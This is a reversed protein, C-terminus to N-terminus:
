KGFMNKILAILKNFLEAIKKFFKILGSSALGDSDIIDKTLSDMIKKAADGFDRIFAVDSKDLLEFFFQWNENFQKHWDNGSHAGVHLGYFLYYVTYLAKDTGDPTSVMQAFNDLFSCIFTYAKEDMSTEAKILEELKKVNDGTGLFRLLLRLVITVMDARSSMGAYEMRYATRGNLSEYSVLKGTTLEAVADITLEAFDFGTSDELKEFALAMLSEFTMEDLRVGLLEYLDVHVLPELADLVTYVSNLTNKWVSDLGNSNIFYAVNPLLEFIETSPNALIADLKDLIPDLIDTLMADENAAIDAVYEGYTKIGNCNLAELVPILGDNYGDSGPLVVQDNGDADLFFAIDEETLLWKLVPYLPRLMDCLASTFAARDGDEIEPVTYTGYFFLDVGLASKVASKILEAEDLEDIKEVLEALKSYIKDLNSKTYINGGVLDNILDELSKLQKGDVEIGLFEIIDDAFCGIYKAIYEAMEPKWFEGYGYDFIKSTEIGTFTKDPDDAYETYLWDITQRFEPVNLDLLKMVADYNEEGLLKKFEEENNPDGLVDLAVSLLVTVTDARFSTKEEETADPAYCMYLAGEGNASEFYNLQGIYLYKIIGRINEAFTIGAKNKLIEFVTETTLNDLEFGVTDNLSADGIVPSLKTLIGIVPSLLNNVTAKVGDANLFYVINPLLDILNELPKGTTLEDVRDLVSVLLEHVFLTMDTTGDAKKYKEPSNMDCGLAELLPVLGYAYGNENGALGIIPKLTHQGDETESSTFFTYSDGFLLWSLLKHVPTLVEELATIFSDKDGNINWVRTCTIEGTEDDTECMDFWTDIIDPDIDLMLMVTERLAKDIGSLAKVLSVVVSSLVEDTYVNDTILGKLLTELDSGNQDALLKDVIGSLASMLSDATPKNWNNSYKLYNITREPLTAKALDDIDPLEGADPDSYYYLWNIKEVDLKDGTFLSKVLALIESAKTNGSMEDIFACVIEGNTKGGTKESSWDVVELLASLIVTLGDAANCSSRYATNGTASEFEEPSAGISAIGETVLPSGTIDTGFYIDVLRFIESFSLKKTHIDYWKEYEANDTYTGSIIKLINDLDAKGTNLLDSVLVSLIKDLDLDVLPRITDLLTTIPMLINYLVVSLGNSEVFYIFNPLLEVLNKIVNGDLIENIRDFLQNCLYEFARADGNEEVYANYEAQTMVDKVGLLEFLYVVANSYGEYGKLTLAGTFLPVDEGTMIMSIIPAMPTALAFFISFFAERDGDALVKGDKEWTYVTKTEGTEDDTVVSANVRVTGFNTTYGEDGPKLATVDYRDTISPFAYAFADAWQQIDVGTEREILDYVAQNRLTYGFSILEKALSTITNNNFLGNVADRLKETVSEDGTAAKVIEDINDLLYNAKKPTWDTNYALYALARLDVKNEITADKDTRYWDPTMPAYDQPNFLEIIAALAADTNGSINDILAYVIDPLEIKDGDKSAADLIGDILERDGLIGFVFDLITYFVDATNATIKLRKGSSRQSSANTDYTSCIIVKGANILPVPIDLGASELVYDVINNINTYDFGLMDELDVLDKLALSFDFAPINKNALDKVTGRFADELWGPCNNVDFKELDRISLKVHMNINVTNILEQLSDFSLFYLLQPLMEAIREVPQASFQDILALLPDFLADVMEVATANTGLTKFTYGYDAIGLAEMVPIWLDSYLKLGDIKLNADIRLGVAATVSYSIGVLSDKYTIKGDGYALREANSEYTKGCLVTQLLPLISNFINGMASAFSDYDTVGWDFTLYGNEDLLNEWKNGCSNLATKIASYVGTDPLRSALQVPYVNIGLTSLLNYVTITSRQGDMYVDIRGSLGGGALEGLDIAFAASPDSPPYIGSIGMNKIQPVLNAIEKCVMPFLSAVITNVLENNFVNEKLVTELYASLNEVENGNKDKFDILRAFDSSTLFKDLKEITDTIKEGTVYYNEAAGNRAMDSPYGIQKGDADKQDGAYRTVYVGDTDYKAPTYPLGKTAKFNNVADIFDKSKGYITVDEENVWNVKEPNGANGNSLVYACYDYLAGDLNNVAKELGLFNNFDVKITGVTGGAAVAQKYVAQLQKHNREILDAKMASLYSSVADPLFVLEDGDYFSFVRKLLDDNLKDAYSNYTSELETNKNYDATFRSAEESNSYSAPSTYILPIYYELFPTFDDEANAEDAVYNMNTKFAFVYATGDSFVENVEDASSAMYGELTKVYGNFVGNISSILAHPYESDPFRALFEEGTLSTVDDANVKPNEAITKDIAKKLERLYYLDIDHKLESLWDAYADLEMGVCETMDAKTQSSLGNLINYKATAESYLRNMGDLDNNDYGASIASKFWDSYDKNLLVQQARKCYEIYTNVASVTPDVFFHNKITWSLLEIKSSYSTNDAVVRNISELTNADVLTKVTQGDVKAKTFFNYYAKINSIAESDSNSYSLSFASGFTYWEKVRRWQGWPKAKGTDNTRNRYANVNYYVTRDVSDPLNSVTDYSLLASELTRTVSVTVTGSITILDGPSSVGGVGNSKYWEKKNTDDHWWFENMEYTCLSNLLTASAGTAGTLSIIRNRMKTFWNYSSREAELVPQLAVLVNYVYGKSTNDTITISLNGKTATYNSAEGSNAFADLAKKLTNIQESSAAAGVSVTLNPLCVSFVSFAMLVSLFVSLIKKSVSANNTAKRGM